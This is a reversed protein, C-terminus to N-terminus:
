PELLTHRAMELQSILNKLDSEHILISTSKESQNSNHVNMELYATESSIKLNIEFDDSVIDVQTKTVLSM